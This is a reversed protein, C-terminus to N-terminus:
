IWPLYVVFHPMYVAIMFKWVCELAEEKTKIIEDYVQIINIDAILNINYWNTRISEISKVLLTNKRNQYEM